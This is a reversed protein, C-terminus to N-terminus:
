DKVTVNGSKYSHMYLHANEYYLLKGNSSTQPKVEFHTFPATENDSYYNNFITGYRRL